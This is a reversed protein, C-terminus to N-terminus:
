IVWPYALLQLYVTVGNLANYLMHLVTCGGKDLM